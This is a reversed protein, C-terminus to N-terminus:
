DAENNLGMKVKRRKEREQADIVAVATMNVMEEVSAGLQLVHVAKRLGLMIPGISDAANLEKLLKYTINASELNPFILTNVKKGALTSFPFQSQRLKKNLAFDTQIEGDVILEPNRTHLIKIADRVKIAHPHNSTGFNSYSLLALVPDFGFAMGLNATMQAIEALEESNPDINISTDSLILPGRQTIMIHATAARSVNNAKGIVEFIPKVVNAYARCHGSIMGDADGERVMMAGFYNRERMKTNAGYLTVGNRKRSDFFKEAYSKRKGKSDEDKPDIILVDADFELENKLEKIIEQTSEKTKDTQVMAYTSLPRQGKADLILAVAGYTWHKDERLNMNLRSTFEGGLVNMISEKAIEDVKGYPEILYGTLITSQQSTSQKISTTNIKSRKKISVEDITCILTGNGLDSLLVTAGVSKATIIFRSSLTLRLPLGLLQFVMSFSTAVATLYLPLLSFAVMVMM